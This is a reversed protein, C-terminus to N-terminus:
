FLADISAHDEEDQLKPCFVIDLSLVATCRPSHHCLINRKGFMRCQNNDPLKQDIAIKRNANVKAKPVLSNPFM